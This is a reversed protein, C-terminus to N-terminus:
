PVDQGRDRYTALRGVHCARELVRRRGERAGDLHARTRERRVTVEHETSGMAEGIMPVLRVLVERGGRRHVSLHLHRIMEFGGVPRSLDGMRSSLRLRHSAIPPPTAALRIAARTPLELAAVSEGRRPPTSVSRAQSGGFKSRWLSSEYLVWMM